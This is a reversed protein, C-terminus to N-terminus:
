DQNFTRTPPTPETLVKNFRPSLMKNYEHKVGTGNTCVGWSNASRWTWQLVCRKLFFLHFFIDTRAVWVLNCGYFHFFRNLFLNFNFVSSNERFKFVSLFVWRWRSCTLGAPLRAKRTLKVSHPREYIPFRKDGDEQSLINRDLCEQTAEGNRTRVPCLKLM